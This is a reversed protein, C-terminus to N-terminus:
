KQIYYNKVTKNSDLEVVVYSIYEPDINFEYKEIILFQITNDKQIQPEGLLQIVQKESLGKLTDSKILDDVMKERKDSMQWDLGKHKWTESNFKEKITCSTFFIFLILLFLIKTYHNM